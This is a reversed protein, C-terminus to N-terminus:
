SVMDSDRRPSKQYWVGCSLQTTTCLVKCEMTKGWSYVPEPFQTCEHSSEFMMVSALKLTRHSMSPKAYGFFSIIVVLHSIM